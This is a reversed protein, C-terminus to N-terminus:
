QNNCTLRPQNGFAQLVEFTSTRFTTPDIREAVFGTYCECYGKYNTVEPFLGDSAIICMDYLELLDAGTWGQGYLTITEDQEDVSGCAVFILCAILTFLKM